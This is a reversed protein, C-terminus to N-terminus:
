NLTLMVDDVLCSANAEGDALFGIEVEGGKIQVNNVTITQWTASAGKILYQFPKHNSTAYFLLQHFRNNWKVKASLTYLGDPLKVWATSVIKQSIKRKFSIQDTINLSKEGIVSIRDTQSNFNNLAPSYTSDLGISNGKIVETHWGTLQEQVPKVSSPIRKRDAEFSGNKIFNNDRAVKWQGSQSDLNWSNLSNFYPTTGVFSIPCWQNFGLGNGAFDAWRDGCYIVTEQEKGKVNVFFGTQTVHTYDIESGKMVMMQNTPKYPGRIDDAVLYYAFSADWGYINSAFM